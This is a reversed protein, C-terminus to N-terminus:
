TYIQRIPFKVRPCRWLGGRPFPLRFVEEAEEDAARSEAGEPCSEATGETASSPRQLLARVAAYSDRRLRVRVDPKGAEHRVLYGESKLGDKAARLEREEEGEVIEPEPAPLTQTIVSERSYTVASEEGYVRVNIWGTGTRCVIYAKGAGENKLKLDCSSGSVMADFSPEVYGVALSHPHYEKVSLGALIAANYVTTSVQCVGGGVGPVFEGEFIIPAERYGNEPTRAGAARNFSFTEGRRLVTGNIKSAALAINYARDTNEANFYTTFSSLLSVSRRADAETFSPKVTEPSAYVEWVGNELAEETKTKLAAGDLFRGCKEMRFRFLEREEPFFQVRADVSKLYFCDCIGRLTDDIKTLRLKKQLPQAGGKAAARLAARLNTEFYLEPARFAFEKGEVVIRFVKGSLEKELSERVTQAAESATKGSVDIGGVSAGRPFRPASFGCLFFCMGAMFAFLLCYSVAKKGKGM